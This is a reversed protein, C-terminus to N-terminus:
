PIRWTFTATRILRSAGPILSTGRRLERREWFRLQNTTQMWSRSEVTGSNVYLNCAQQTPGFIMLIASNGQEVERKETLASSNEMRLFFRSAIIARILWMFETRRM